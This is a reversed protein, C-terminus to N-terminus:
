HFCLLITTEQHTIREGKALAFEDGVSEEEKAIVFCLQLILSAPLIRFLRNTKFQCIPLPPSKPLALCLLAIIPKARSIQVELSAAMLTNALPLRAEGFPGANLPM